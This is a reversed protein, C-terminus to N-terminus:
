YKEIYFGNKLLYIKVPDKPNLNIERRFEIPLVVRGLNDVNRKIGETNGTDIEIISM